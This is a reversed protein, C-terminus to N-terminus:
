HTEFEQHKMQYTITTMGLDGIKNYHKLLSVGVMGCERDLIKNKIPFPHFLISEACVACVCLICWGVRM